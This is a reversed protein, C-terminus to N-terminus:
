ACNELETKKTAAITRSPTAMVIANVPCPAVCAGCGSCTDKDLEPIAVSRIRPTMRIAHVECPDYCGRCEVGKYSLCKDPDISAKVKWPSQNAVKRLAGPACSDLCEGCFLCEGVNFDIIPLKGRGQKLVKMPCKGICDGCGSCVSVFLDEPLAWPPRLPGGRGRLNGSLFEKRNVIM